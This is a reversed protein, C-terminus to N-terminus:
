RLLAKEVNIITFKKTEEDFELFEYVRGLCDLNYNIGDRVRIGKDMERHMDIYGTHGVIQTLGEIGSFESNWDCWMLGGVRDAGGRANGIWYMPSVYNPDRIWEFLKDELNEFTVDLENWIYKCLGAHTVLIKNEADYDYYKLQKWMKAIVQHWSLMDKFNRAFGSCKMADVLYSLEHNGMLAITDGRESMSIIMEICAFQEARTFDFSDVYDGLFVKKYDKFNEDVYKIVSLNGHIDGVYITKM